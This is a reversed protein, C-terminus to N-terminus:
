MLSLRVLRLDLTVCEKLQALWTGRYIRTLTETKYLPWPKTRSTFSVSQKIEIERQRLAINQSNLLTM